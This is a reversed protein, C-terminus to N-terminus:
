LRDEERLPELDDDTKALERFNQDLAIAKEIRARAVILNGLQCAYCGLNFHITPNGPHLQEAQKLIKEAAVLNQARRTAYAFTIWWEPREPHREVLTASVDQLEHWDKQEQLLAVRLALVETRDREQDPIRGIEAAAEQLM